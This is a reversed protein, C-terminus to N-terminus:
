SVVNTPCGDFFSHVNGALISVLRQRTELGKWGMHPTLIVNDLTYLPNDEVPPETEQVDLAAGAIAHNQLAEILFDWVTEQDDVILITETGRPLAEPM